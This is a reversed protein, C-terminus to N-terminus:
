SLVALPARSAEFFVDGVDCGCPLAPEMGAGGAVAAAATWWGLITWVAKMWLSYLMSSSGEICCRIEHDDAASLKMMVGDGSKEFTRACYKLCM